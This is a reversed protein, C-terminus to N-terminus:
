FEMRFGLSLNEQSQGTRGALREYYVFGSRGNTFLMSLGFGLRFFSRDMASGTIVIPSQTPDHIFYAEVIAPDDKTEREWELEFSPMLVGWSASYAYSAKGGLVTALSTLDRSRVALGLGSGPGAQLVERSEGFEVRSYLLRGYTGLNWAGKQFDRGLTFAAQLQDGDSSGRALQDIEVTGGGVLPLTYHITRLSRYDNRGWTLVGDVYWNTDNFWSGYGSVSWGRTELSGSDDRADTDQATYGLSGGVIFNDNVRYDIGSTLGNIDYDFAPTTSTPDFEGRGINGSVFWGWRSFGADLDAGEEGAMAKFLGVLPVSGGPGLLTLGAFGNSPAGGRLAALRGQLNQLQSQLAILTADSQAQVLEQFWESLAAITAEPDLGAADVIELCRQLLDQQEPTPNPIAALAPCMRDIVEAVQEEVPDLNDLNAVAGNLTFTIPGADPNTSVATVSAAGPELVKAIVQARGNSDTETSDADLEANEASWEIAVGAIPEGEETRLEVVLPESDTNTPLTQEDGSIITLVGTPIFATATFVTTGGPTTATVSHTGPDPGLTFIVSSEGNADTFTNSSSVSGGGQTVVWQVPVGALGKAAAGGAAPSAPLSVRVKLPEPLPEGVAGSQGNGGGPMIDGGLVDLQFDVHISGRASARVTAPGVTSGFSFPMASKGNGDTSDSSASLNISGSTVSWAISEGSIAAGNADVLQVTLPQEGATGVLGSQGDGSVLTMSPAAVNFVFNVSATPVDKRTATVVVTGPTSGFTVTNTAEGNGAASSSNAALNGDGSIAWDIDVGAAPIGDDEARVTM